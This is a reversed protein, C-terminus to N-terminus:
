IHTVVDAIQSLLPDILCLIHVHLYKLSMLNSTQATQKGVMMQAISAEIANYTCM